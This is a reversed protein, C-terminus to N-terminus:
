SEPNQVIEDVLRSVIPRGNVVADHLEAATVGSDELDELPQIETQKREAVRINYM